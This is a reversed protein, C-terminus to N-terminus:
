AEEDITIPIERKLSQELSILTETAVVGPISQLRGNVLDDKSCGIAFAEGLFLRVPERERLINNDKATMVFPHVLAHAIMQDGLFIRDAIKDQGSAFQRSRHHGVSDYAQQGSCETVDLRCEVIRELVPQEFGPDIGPGRVVFSPFHWLYKEGAMLSLYFFPEVVLGYFMGFGSSGIEQILSRVFVGWM